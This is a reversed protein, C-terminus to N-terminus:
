SFRSRFIPANQHRKDFHRVALMERAGALVPPAGKEVATRGGRIRAALGSPDVDRGDALSSLSM